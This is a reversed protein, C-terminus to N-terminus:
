LGSGSRKLASGDCPESWGEPIEKNGKTQYFFRAVTRTQRSRLAVSAASPQMAPGQDVRRGRHAPPEVDDPIFDALDAHQTHRWVGEAPNLEPAYPPLREFAFGSGAREALLWAARRVAAVAPDHGRRTRLRPKGSVKRREPASAFLHSSTHCVAIWKPRRRHRTLGVCVRNGQAMALTRACLAPGKGFPRKRATIEKEM